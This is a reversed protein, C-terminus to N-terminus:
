AHAAEELIRWLEDREPPDLEVDGTPQRLVRPGDTARGVAAAPIGAAGLAEVLAAGERTAVLM